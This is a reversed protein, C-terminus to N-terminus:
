YIAFCSSFWASSGKTFIMFITCNSILNNFSVHFMKLSFNYQFRSDRRGSRANDHRGAEVWSGGSGTLGGPWGSSHVVIDSSYPRVSNHTNDIAVDCKLMENNSSWTLIKHKMENDDDAQLLRARETRQM